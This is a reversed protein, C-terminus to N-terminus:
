RRLRALRPGVGDDGSPPAPAHGRPRPPLRARSGERRRDTPDPLRAGGGWARGAAPDRSRRRVSASPPRAPDPGLPEAARARSRAGAGPRCGPTARPAFARQGPRHAGRRFRSDGRLPRARDRRPGTAARGLRFRDRRLARAGRAVAPRGPRSLTRHLALERAGEERNGRRTLLSGLAYRPAALQPGLSVAKRYAQEAEAVKGLAEYARGLELHASAEGPRLRVSEELSM